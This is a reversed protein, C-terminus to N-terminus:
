ERVRLEKIRAAKGTVGRLYYLQARRVKGRRTVEIREVRPSHVLFTREVGIGHSAVRRVTFTTNVGGHRLRMVVGEFVQTRERLGEVINVHVRVNDGPAFPTVEQKLYRQEVDRVLDMM